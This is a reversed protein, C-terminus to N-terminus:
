VPPTKLDFQGPSNIVPQATRSDDGGFFDATNDYLGFHTVEETGGDAAFGTSDAKVGIANLLNCFYKNIPAVATGEPTGTADVSGFPIDNEGNCYKDSDGPTLDAAGNEVNIAGGTWFADGCSGAQLIPLNN